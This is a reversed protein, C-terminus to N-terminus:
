IYLRSFPHYADLVLQILGLAFDTQTTPELINLGHFAEGALGSSKIDCM